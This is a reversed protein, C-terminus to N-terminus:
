GRNRPDTQTVGGCPHQSSPLHFRKDSTGRLMLALTRPQAQQHSLAGTERTFAGFRQAPLLQHLDPRQLTM